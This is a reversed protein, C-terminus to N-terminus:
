ARRPKTSAIFSRFIRSPRRAQAAVAAPRSLLTMQSVGPSRCCRSRKKTNPMSPNGKIDGIKAFIDSAMPTCRFGDGSVFLLSQEGLPTLDLPADGYICAWIHDKPLASNRFCVEDFWAILADAEFLLM